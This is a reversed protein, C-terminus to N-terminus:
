AMGADIARLPDTLGLMMPMNRLVHPQAFQRAIAFLNALVAFLLTPLSQGRPQKRHQDARAGSAADVRSLQGDGAVRVILTGAM